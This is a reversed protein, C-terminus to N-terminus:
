RLRPRAASGPGAGGRANVAGSGGSCGNSIGAAGGPEAGDGQQLRCRVPAGVAGAASVPRARGACVAGRAGGVGGGHRRRAQRAGDGCGAAARRRARGRAATARGSSKDAAGAARWARGAAARGRAGDGGRRATAAAAAAVGGRKAARRWAVRGRSSGVSTGRDESKGWEQKGRASTTYLLCRNWTRKRRGCMGPFIEMRRRAKTQTPRPIALRLALRGAVCLRCLVFRVLVSRESLALRSSITWTWSPYVFTVSAPSFPHRAEFIKGTKMQVIGLHRTHTQLHVSLFRRIAPGQCYWLRRHRGRFSNAVSLFRVDRPRSFVPTVSAPKFSNAVILFRLPSAQVVGLHRVRPNHLQSLRKGTCHKESIPWIRRTRCHWAGM